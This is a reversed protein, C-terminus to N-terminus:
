ADHDTAAAGGGQAPHPADHDNEIEERSPGALKSLANGRHAGAVQSVFSSPRLKRTPKM